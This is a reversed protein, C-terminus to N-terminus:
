PRGAEWANCWLPPQRQARLRQFENGFYRAFLSSQVDDNSWVEDDDGSHGSEVPLIGRIQGLWFECDVEWFATGGDKALAGVIDGEDIRKSCGVSSMGDPNEAKAQHGPSLM